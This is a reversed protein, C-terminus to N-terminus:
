NGSWFPVRIYSPTRTNDGQQGCLDCKGKSNPMVQWWSLVCSLHRWHNNPCVSCYLDLLSDNLRDMCIICEENEVPAKDVITHIPAIRIDIKLNSLFMDTIVCHMFSMYESMNTFASNVVRAERRCEEMLRNRITYGWLREYLIKLLVNPRSPARSCNYYYSYKGSWLLNFATYLTVDGVDFNSLFEIWPHDIFYVKVKYKCEPHAKSEVYLYKCHNYPLNAYINFGSSAIDMMLNRALLGDFAEPYLYNKEQSTMKVASVSITDIPLSCGADVAKEISAARLRSGSFARSCNKNIPHIVSMITDFSMYYSKSLVNFLRTFEKVYQRNSEYNCSTIIM